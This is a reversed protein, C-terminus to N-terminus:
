DLSAHIIKGYVLMAIYVGFCAIIIEFWEVLGLPVTGFIPQFFPVYIVVLQLAISSAIAIILKRNSFFGIKYKMRVSETRVMEFMVVATFAVTVAKAGGQLLHYDFLFLTLICMVSGFVLIEFLMHKTLINEKPNRPPREM